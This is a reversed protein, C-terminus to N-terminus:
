EEEPVGNLLQELDNLSLDQLMELTAEDPEEENHKALLQNILNQRETM